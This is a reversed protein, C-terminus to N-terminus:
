PAESVSVHAVESLRYSHAVGDNDLFMVHTDTIRAKIVSFYSTGSGQSLEVRANPIWEGWDPATKGGYHLGVRRQESM